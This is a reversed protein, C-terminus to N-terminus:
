RLRASFQRFGALVPDILSGRVLWRPCFGLFARCGACCRFPARPRARFRINGSSKLLLYRCHAQAM